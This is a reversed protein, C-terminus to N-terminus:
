PPPGVGVPIPGEAPESLPSEILGHQYAYRAAATRNPVNLKRYINTLHFKVTQETVWLERGIAQNSLGRAVAKLIVIERETLGVAKATANEDAEPLGLAHYVTGDFAQRVASPLDAPNISKVIYGEAGRKLAAQIHEPDSFASLVVVKVKPYRRQIRDLCTLGDAGPMRIDLLVIDPDTSSILPLVESGSHAEGVIEVEDCDEFARRIGILVLQHDDALLLRLRRPAVMTDGSATHTPSQSRELTRTVGKPQVGM